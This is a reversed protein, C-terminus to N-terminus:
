ISWASRRTARGAGLNRGQRAVDAANRHRVATSASGSRRSWRKMTARPLRSLRLYDTECMGGVLDPYRASLRAGGCALFMLNRGPVFTTPLGHRADRDAGTTLARRRHRRLRDPRRCPGAGAPAWPAADRWGTASAGGPEMEVAHRQGYDFGVTEVRTYRDLAWALCTDIRGAPFCCWLRLWFSKGDYSRATSPRLRWRRSRWM